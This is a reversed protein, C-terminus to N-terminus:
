PLRVEAVVDGTGSTRTFVLSMDSWYAGDFAETFNWASGSPGSAFTYTGITVYSKKDDVRGQLAFTGALTQTGSGGNVYINLVFAGLRNPKFYGTVSSSGALAEIIKSFVDTNIM